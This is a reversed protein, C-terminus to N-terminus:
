VNDRLSEEDEGGVICFRTGIKYMELCDDLVYYDGKYFALGEVKYPSFETIPPDETDFEECACKVTDGIAVPFAIPSAVGREIDSIVSKAVQYVDIPALTGEREIRDCLRRTMRDVAALYYATKETDNGVPLVGAKLLHDALRPIDPLRMVIGTGEGVPARFRELTEILGKRMDENRM